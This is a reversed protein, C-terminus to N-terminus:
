DEEQLTPKKFLDEVLDILIIRSFEKLDKVEIGLTKALNGVSRNFARRNLKIDEESIKMKLVAYAIKGKLAENMETM